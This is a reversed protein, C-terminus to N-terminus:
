LNNHALMQTRSISGLDKPLAALPRVMSGDKRDWSVMHIKLQAKQAVHQTLKLNQQIFTLIDDLLSRDISM